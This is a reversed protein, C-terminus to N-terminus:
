HRNSVPLDGIHGPCLRELQENSVHPRPILRSTQCVSSRIPSLFGGFFDEPLLLECLACCAFAWAFRGGSGLAASLFLFFFYAM